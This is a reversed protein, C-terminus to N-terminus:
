ATKRARNFRAPGGEAAFSEVVERALADMGAGGRAGRHLLIHYNGLDPLGEASGLAVLPGDVLSAPFPAIALDAHLAAAQGVCHESTYAVRYRLGAKDLAALAAARWACTQGSLALPLPSHEHAIGGKIGAWLLPESFVIEGEADHKGSNGATVLALDLTGAELRGMLEFSTGLVVNVEVLPHTCAFRALINPLFRTGFDDPAGFSITGEVAPCVFRSVAEENLRLMRRAFGLLAEGDPTLSVSRGERLFLPRGLTEELKKIQMSVASPTRYVRQAARTFSGTESIAVFSRILDTELLPVNTATQDSM